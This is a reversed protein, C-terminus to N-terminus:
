AQSMYMLTVQISRADAICQLAEMHEKNIPGESVVIPHGPTTVGQVHGSLLNFMEQM